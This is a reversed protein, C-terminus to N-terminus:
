DIKKSIGTHKKSKKILNLQHKINEAQQTGLNVNFFQTEKRKLQLEDLECTKSELTRCNKNSSSNRREKIRKVGPLKNKKFVLNNDQNVSVIGFKVDDKNSSGNKLNLSNNQKLSEKNSKFDNLNKQPPSMVNMEKTVQLINDIFTQLFKPDEAKRLNHSITQTVKCCNVQPTIKVLFEELAKNETKGFKLNFSPTELQTVIEHREIERLKKRELDFKVLNSISGDNNEGLSSSYNKPFHNILSAKKLNLKKSDDNFCNNNIEEKIVKKTTSNLKSGFCLAAHQQFPFPHAYGRIDQHFIDQQM